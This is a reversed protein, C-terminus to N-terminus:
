QRVDTPVNSSLGELIISLGFEFAHEFDWPNFSVAAEIHTFHGEKLKSTNVTASPDLGKSPGRIEYSVQGLVFNM